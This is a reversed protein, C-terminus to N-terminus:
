CSKCEYTLVEPIFPLVSLWGRRFSSELSVRQHIIDQEQHDLDEILRYLARIRARLSEVSIGNAPCFEKITWRRLETGMDITLAKDLYQCELPLTQASPLGEDDGGCGPTRSRAIRGEGRRHRYLRIAGPQDEPLAGRGEEIGGPREPDAPGAGALPLVRGAPEGVQGARGACWAGRRFMTATVGVPISPVLRTVRVHTSPALGVKLVFWM